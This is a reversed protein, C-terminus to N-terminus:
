VHDNNIRIQTKKYCFQLTWLRSSVTCECFPKAELFGEQVVFFRGCNYLQLWCPGWLNRKDSRGAEFAALASEAGLRPSSTGLELM